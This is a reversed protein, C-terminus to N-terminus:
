KNNSLQSKIDSTNTDIDRLRQNSDKNSSNIDKLENLIKEQNDVITQYGALLIADSYSLKFVNDKDQSVQKFINMAKESINTM